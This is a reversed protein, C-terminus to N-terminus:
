LRVVLYSTLSIAGVAPSHGDRRYWCWCHFDNWADVVEPFASFAIESHVGSPDSASHGALAFLDPLAWCV